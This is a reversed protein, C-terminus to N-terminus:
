VVAEMRLAPCTGSPMATRYAASADWYPSMHRLSSCSASLAPSSRDSRSGMAARIITRPASLQAASHHFGRRPESSVTTRVACDSTLCPRPTGASPSSVGPAAAPAAGRLGRGLFRGVGPQGSAGQQPVGRRCRAIMSLRLRPSGQAEILIVAATLVRRPAIALGIRGLATGSVTVAPIGPEDLGGRRPRVPGPTVDTVQYRRALDLGPLRLAVPQDNRPEDLQVYSVLAASRDAAIVGYMWATDDASDIRVVRGSHILARHRKYLGIWGALEATDDPDLQTLDAEIGFHGFLATAGRLSMPMYRGTQHSFPASVHAGLYEPPVLQGTWRQIPQRALADTMDSTWVRQVRELIALDIRGGGAACSEWEV